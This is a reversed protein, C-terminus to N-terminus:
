NVKSQEFGIIQIDKFEKLAEFVGDKEFKEQIDKDSQFGDQKTLIAANKPNDSVLEKSNLTLYYQKNDKKMTVFWVDHNKSNIATTLKDEIYEGAKAGAYTGGVTGAAKGAASGISSGVNKGVGIMASAAGSSVKQGIGKLGKDFPIAGVARKVAEEGLKETAKETAFKSGILGGLKEGAFEGIKSGFM